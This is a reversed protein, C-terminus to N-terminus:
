GKLIQCSLYCGVGRKEDKVCVYERVLVRACAQM